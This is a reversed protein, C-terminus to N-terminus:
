RHCPKGLDYDSLPRSFGACHLLEYDDLAYISKWVLEYRREITHARLDIALCIAVTITEYISKYTM